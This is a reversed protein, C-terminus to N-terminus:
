TKKRNNKVKIKYDLLVLFDYIVLKCGCVFLKDIKYNCEMKIM